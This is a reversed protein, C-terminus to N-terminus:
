RGGDKCRYGVRALTREGHAVDTVDCSKLVLALFDVKYTRRVDRLLAYVLDLAHNAGKSRVRDADLEVLPAVFHEDILGSPPLQINELDNPLFPDEKEQTTEREPGVLAAHPLLQPHCRAGFEECTHLDGFFDARAHHQRITVNLRSELPRPRVEGEPVLDAGKATSSM